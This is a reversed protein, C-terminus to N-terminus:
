KESEERQADLSSGRAFGSTAGFDSFFFCQAGLPFIPTRRSLGTTIRSTKKKKASATTRERESERARILLM